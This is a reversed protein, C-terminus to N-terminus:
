KTPPVFAPWSSDKESVSVGDVVPWSVSFFPDDWAMGREAGPAYGTNTLYLVESNAELAQYGHACREPVVLAHRNAPTLEVGFWAGFTPSDPRVDACVDFVAGQICRVFKAEGHPAEQWHFGRILGRDASQSMNIQAVSDAAGVVALEDGCWARAFYGREDEIMDLSAM